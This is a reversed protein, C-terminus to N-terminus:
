IRAATNKLYDISWKPVKDWEGKKHEEFLRKCVVNNEEASLNLRKRIIRKIQPYTKSKFLEVLEPYPVPKCEPNFNMLCAPDGIVYSHSIKGSPLPTGYRIYAM